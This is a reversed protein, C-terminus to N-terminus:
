LFKTTKSINVGKLQMKRLFANGVEEFGQVSSCADELIYCKSLQDVTLHEAIHEFTSAVCHSLAQGAILLKSNYANLNNKIKDILIMNYYYTNHEESTVEPTIASYQETLPNQGKTYITAHKTSGEWGHVAHIFSPVLAQGVTGNICHEPWITLVLKKTSELRETYWIAYDHLERKVPVWVHNRIDQSTIQTFIDPHLGNKDTWFIAHAIHYRDHLDMTIDIDVIQSRIRNILNSLRVTDQAAVPVYLSGKKDAFDNQIDIGLISIM